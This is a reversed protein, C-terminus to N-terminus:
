NAWFRREETLVQLLLGFQDHGEALKKGSSQYTSLHGNNDLLLTLSPTTIVLKNDISSTIWTQKPDRDISFLDHGQSYNEASTTVLLLRQMLTAMIDNHSTLTEIKQAPTNPWHIVLPVHMFQRYRETINSPSTIAAAHAATVVVVTRELLQQQQLTTLIQEIQQNTEYATTQYTESWQQVTNGTRKIGPLDIWSFWHEDATKTKETATLWNQWQQVTQTDSQTHPPQLTFDALLAQRYLPPKFGTSSFLGFQYQQNTLTNLLASPVSSAMISNLYSTSIGYFLSFLGSNSDLGSSFHQTFQANRDAFQQLAPLDQALKLPNAAGLTVFLLNYHTQQNRYEIEGLPYTISQADPRGFQVLRRQYDQHDLLGHKELFRRATMPYSLPLNERQMTIPRYFNADAWIYLIHTTFFTVIFLGVIPKAYRRRRDFSRLKQWSWSALLIEILFILPMGIFIIQWDRTKESLAPNIILQWVTTNIHLHFLKFVESDIILLTLGATAIIAAIVKLLRESRIIFTLPFLLLLYAVFVLFSFHGLWNCYAYIRGTLSGPWDTIFLYRGGAILALIINFFAFWHGWSILSSLKHSHSPQQNNTM